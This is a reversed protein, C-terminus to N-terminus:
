IKSSSSSSSHVSISSSLQRASVKIKRFRKRVEVTPAVAPEDVGAEQEKKRRSRKGRKRKGDRERRERRLRRRQRREEDDLDDDDDSDDSDYDDDDDEEEDDTAASRRRKEKGISEVDPQGDKGSALRSGEVDVALGSTRAVVYETADAQATAQGEAPPKAELADYMVALSKRRSDVHALLSLASAMNRTSMVLLVAHSLDQVSGEEVPGFSDQYKEFRTLLRLV